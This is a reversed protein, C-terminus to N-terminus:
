SAGCPCTQRLIYVASEAKSNPASAGFDRASYAAVRALNPAPLFARGPDGILVDIGNAQYRALCAFAREALLPDYFLDGATVLDVDLPESALLDLCRIELNVGNAKANLEAAIVARPDIDIATVNSAGAMAACIAVLGSGTGLDLVKRGKALDPNALIHQALALGGPWAYAWYPSGDEAIRGLGSSPTAQHLLIKPLAPVAALPLRERIFAAIQADSLPEPWRAPQVPM